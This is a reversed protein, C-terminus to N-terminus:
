PAALRIADLTAAVARSEALPVVYATGDGHVRAGIAEVMLRYPDVAAFEEVTEHGGDVLRLRSPARLSAYAPSELEVARDGASAALVQREPEVFSVRVSAVGHAARLTATTTADVGTDARDVEVEDVALPEGAAGLLWSAGMVAYCGVDYLAGGGMAPDLRYNDDAVGPFTFVADVSREADGLFGDAVLQEARRNRPHWRNWAAEVLLRDADAAVAAMREVEDATLGLPKECLVHKGATLARLTWPLHADNALAVYVVDVEPDDCVAAYDDYARAPELAAARAPDRAAVAVLDAGEAAHVAPALAVRAILGAGLFGWRTVADTV